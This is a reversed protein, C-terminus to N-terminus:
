VHMMYCSIPNTKHYNGSIMRTLSYQEVLQKMAPSLEAKTQKRSQAM